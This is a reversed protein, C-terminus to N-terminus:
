RVLVNDILRTKGFFVAMSFLAGGSADDLELLTEQDAVSVYDIKALAEQSITDEMIQRLKQGRHEGKQYAEQAALLARYLVNAGSRQEASLYKNRSSQALGDEERVIPCIVLEIDFNLDQVMRKLVVAQQADKQGFYARTPQIINFLKAVVTTVGQFHTPRSSGELYKSIEDVTM